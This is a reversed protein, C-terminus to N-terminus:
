ISIEKNWADDTSHSKSNRLCDWETEDPITEQVDGLEEQHALLKLREVVEVHGPDSLLVDLELHEDVLLTLGITPEHSAFIALVLRCISGLGLDLDHLGLGM